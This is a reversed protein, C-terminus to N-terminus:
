ERAYAERLRRVLELALRKQDGFTPGAEFVAAIDDLSKQALEADVTSREVGM